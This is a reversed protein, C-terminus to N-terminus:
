PSGDPAAAILSIRAPQAQLAPEGPARPVPEWVFTVRTKGNEGRATGVWTRVLRSGATQTAANLANEVATPLAPKPPLAAAAADERTAAWYGRRARLQIGPGKVRVKIEHFKGDNPKTSTYGLLYYASTDRVIQKMGMTIDNRNVIARGDTN